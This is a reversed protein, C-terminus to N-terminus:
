CSSSISYCRINGGVREPKLGWNGAESGGLIGDGRGGGVSRTAIGLVGDFGGPFDGKGVERACACRAVSGLVGRVIAPTFTINYM